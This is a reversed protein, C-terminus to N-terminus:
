EESEMSVSKMDFDSYKKVCATYISLAKAGTVFDSPEQRRSLIGDSQFQKFAYRPSGKTLRFMLGGEVPWLRSYIYAIDVLPIPALPDESNPILGKEFMAQVADDYSANEAVLNQQVAALYCVQGFTAQKSDLLDTIVDASQAYLSIGLLLIFLVSLKKKMDFIKDYM